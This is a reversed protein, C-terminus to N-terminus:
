GEIQTDIRFIPIFLFYWTVRSFTKFLDTKPFYSPKLDYLGLRRIPKRILKEEKRILM